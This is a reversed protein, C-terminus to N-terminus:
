SLRYKRLECNDFRSEISKREKQELEGDDATHNSTREDRLLVLPHMNMMFRLIGGHCILLITEVKNLQGEEEKESSASSESPLMLLKVLGRYGREAADEFKELENPTWSEDEEGM